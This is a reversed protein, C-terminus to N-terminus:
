AKYRAGNRSYIVNRVLLFSTGEVGEEVESEAEDEDEDEDEVRDRHFIGRIM